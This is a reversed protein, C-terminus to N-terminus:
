RHYALLSSISMNSFYMDKVQRSAQKMERDNLFKLEEPLLFSIDGSTSKTVKADVLMSSFVYAENTNYGIIIPVRAIKRSSLIAYPAERLLTEEHKFVAEICLGLPFYPVNLKNSQATLEELETSLFLNTMNDTDPFMDFLKIAREKADYNFAWPSLVSGSQSIVGHYLGDGMTSLTIAEVMAAGLSQGALVVRSPNGHFAVINDRVWRLALVVDKVAANGPTQEEKLCIFGSPGIRFIILLKINGNVTMM